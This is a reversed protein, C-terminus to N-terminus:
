SPWVPKSVPFEPYTLAKLLEDKRDSAQSLQYNLRDVKNIVELLEEVKVWHEIVDKTLSLNSVMDMKRKNM